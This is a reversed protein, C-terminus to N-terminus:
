FQPSETFTLEINNRLADNERANAYCGVFANKARSFVEDVPQRFRADAMTPGEKDIEISVVTAYASYAFAGLAASIVLLSRM